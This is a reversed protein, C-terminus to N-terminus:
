LEEYSFKGKDLESSYNADNSAKYFVNMFEDQTYYGLEALLFDTLRSKEDIVIMIENAETAVKSESAPSVFDYQSLIFEDNAPAQMFSDALLPVMSIFEAYENKTLMSTYTKLAASLSM